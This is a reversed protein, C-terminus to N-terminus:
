MDVEATWAAVAADNQKQASIGPVSGSRSSRGWEARAGALSCHRSSQVGAIHHVNGKAILKWRGGGSGLANRGAIEIINHADQICACSINDHVSLRLRRAFQAALNGLM